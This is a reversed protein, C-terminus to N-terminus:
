KTGAYNATFADNIKPNFKSVKGGRLSHMSAMSKSSSGATKLLSAISNSKGLRNKPAPSSGSRNVNVASNSGLSMNGSSASMSLQKNNNSMSRYDGM